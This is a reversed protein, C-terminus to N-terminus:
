ISCMVVDVLRELTFSTCHFINRNGEALIVFMKLIKYILKQIFKCPYSGTNCSEKLINSTNM